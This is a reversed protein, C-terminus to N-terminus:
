LFHAGLLDGRVIRDVHSSVLRDTVKDEHRPCESLMGAGRFATPSDDAPLPDSPLLPFSSVWVRTWFLKRISSRGEQFSM